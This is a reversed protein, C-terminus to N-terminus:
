VAHLRVRGPGDDGGAVIFHELKNDSLHTQGGFLLVPTTFAATLAAYGHEPLDRFLSTAFVFVAMSIPGLATNAVYLRLCVLCYACCLATGILRNFCKILSSGVDSQSVFCVTITVWM